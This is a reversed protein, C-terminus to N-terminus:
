REPPLAAFEYVILQEGEVAGSFREIIGPARELNPFREGFWVVTSVRWRQLRAAILEPAENNRPFISNWYERGLMYSVLGSYPSQGNGTFVGHGSQRLVPLAIAQHVVRWGVDNWENRVTRLSFALSSAFVVGACVSILHGGLLDNSLYRSAADLGRGFAVYAAGVVPLYYRPYPGWVWLYVATHVLLAAAIVAVGPAARANLLAQLVGVAMFAVFIWWVGPGFSFQSNMSSLYRVGFLAQSGGGILAAGIGQIGEKLGPAPANGQQPQGPTTHVLGAGSEYIVPSYDFLAAAGVQYLQQGSFIWRGYKQSIAAMWPLTVGLTVLMAIVVAGFARFHRPQDSRWWLIAAIPVTLAFIPLQMAKSYYGLAGIVGLLASGCIVEFSQRRGLVVLLWSGVAGALMDSTVLLYAHPLLQVGLILPLIRWHWADSGRQEWILKSVGWLLVGVALINVIRFAMPLSIGFAVWPAMLWSLLPSYMAEISDTWRGQTLRLVVGYYYNADPNHAPPARLIVIGLVSWLLLLDWRWPSIRKLITPVAGCM